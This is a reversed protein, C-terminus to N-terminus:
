RTGGLPSPKQNELEELRAQSIPAVNSNPFKEMVARFERAADPGRNLKLLAMGKKYQADASLTTVPFRELVMDFAKM